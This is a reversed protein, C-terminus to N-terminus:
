QAARSIVEYQKLLWAPEDPEGKNPMKMARSWRHIWSFGGNGAYEDPLSYAADRMATELSIFNYGRHKLM